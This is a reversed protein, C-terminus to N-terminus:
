LTGIPVYDGEGGVEMGGEGRRRATWLLGRPKRPRQAGHKSVTGQMLVAYLPFASCFAHAECGCLGVAGRVCTHALWLDVSLPM